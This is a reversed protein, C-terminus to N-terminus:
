TVKADEVEDRDQSPPIPHSLFSYWWETDVAAGPFYAATIEVGPHTMAVNTMLLNASADPHHSAADAEPSLQAPLGGWRWSEWGGGRQVQPPCFVVVPPPLLDWLLAHCIMERCLGWPTQAESTGM